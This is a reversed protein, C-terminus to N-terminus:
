SNWPTRVQQFRDLKVNFKRLADGLLVVNEPDRRQQADRFLGNVVQPHLSDLKAIGDKGTHQLDQLIGQLCREKGEAHKAWNFLNLRACADGLANLM